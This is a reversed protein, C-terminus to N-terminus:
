ETTLAGYDIIQYPSLHFEKLEKSVGYVQQRLLLPVSVVDVETVLRNCEEALKKRAPGLPTVRLEELKKEFVNSKYRSFNPTVANSYVNLQPISDDFYASMGIFFLDPPNSQLRGILTKLEMPELELQLGLKKELDAQVKEAVVKTMASAGYAFKLRPKKEIARIKAVAAADNLPRYALNGDIPKAVASTFPEYTGNLARVLGERDFSSAVARRWNLDNFPARSVNFSVSFVTTSPVTQILGEKKLRGIESSTVTSIVDMRGSEFLNMATIEESLIKVVIPKRGATASKENPVLVVEDAPKYSEIKYPGTVPFDTNWRSKAALFLERRLPAAAPLTLELLLLPDPKELRIVLEDGERTVGLATVPMKGAYVSRANKIPLFTEANPAATKPDLVHQFGFVFDEIKVPVGDSWLANPKLRFRYELGNKSVTHSVALGNILRGQRDVKYLGEVVNRLISFGYVDLARWPDLTSPEGGMQIRIADKHKAALAAPAELVLGCLLLIALSPYLYRSM